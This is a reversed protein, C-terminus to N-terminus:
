VASGVGESRARREALAVGFRQGLDPGYCITVLEVAQEDPSADPHKERVAMRALDRVTTSLSMVLGGRRAFGAERLMDLHVAEAEPSTDASRM